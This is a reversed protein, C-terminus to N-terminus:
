LTNSLNLGQQTHPFIMTLTSIVKEELNYLEMTTTVIVLMTDEYRLVNPLHQEVFIVCNGCFFTDSFVKM